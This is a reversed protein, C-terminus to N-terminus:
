LLVQVVRFGIWYIARGNDQDFAFVGADSGHNLNGGREFWPWNPNVFWAMMKIGLYNKLILLLVPIM